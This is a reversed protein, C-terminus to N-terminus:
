SGIVVKAFRIIKGNLMYGKELEEIVKGKMDESPAPISTIAEQIDANFPEGISAMEALGKHTLTSKLKNYILQVGDNVAKLDTTEANSKIAREFDDIIPLLSKFVDESGTQIIDIKEKATRKRFNDFESYLRIYKDNVERIEKKLDAIESDKETIDTTEEQFNESQEQNNIENDEIKM